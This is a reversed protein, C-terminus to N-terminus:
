LDGSFALWIGCPARALGSDREGPGLAPQGSVGEGLPPGWRGLMLRKM